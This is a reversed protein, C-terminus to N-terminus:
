YRATNFARAVTRAILRQGSQSPHVDCAFQNQPSANLLGANCTKGGAAPSSAANKFATFVDAVVAGFASASATLAQNLYETVGTGAADSYDLSYYNVVVITGGFGTARLEALGTAINSAITQLVAPLGQAVCQAPDSASACADELLFLDNAGLSITVLRANRHHSLFDKAFKLQTSQYAVHLPAASRFDRCGNDPATSSLFSGTTEGPCAANAFDLDDFVNLYEPYGSFNNPNLYEYGAQTIFGFVVSDGLAM